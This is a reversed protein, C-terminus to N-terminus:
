LWAPIWLLSFLAALQATGALTANLAGGEHRWLSGALRLALPLSLLPLLGLPSRALAVAIGYAAALLAAYYYCSARRGLRVALTHKGAARDTVIDRTNNVVLIAAILLGVAAGAALVTPTVNGAQVYYTGGVAVPGFYVFAFLDGLGHYALPWPGATYLIGSAIGSLGIIVIPWGGIAVLYVGVAFAAAFSLTMATLVDRPSLLGSAVARVPGVRDPGDAGRFHDYVDNAYNTGIQLLLAGALAALAALPRLAGAGAAAATGVLVPAAAAPLTRPRAALLFARFRTM